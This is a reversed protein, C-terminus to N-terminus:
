PERVSRKELIQHKIDYMSEKKQAQIKQRGSCAFVYPLIVMIKALIRPLLGRGHSRVAYSDHTHEGM